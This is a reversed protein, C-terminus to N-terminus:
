RFGLYCICEAFYDLALQPWLVTLRLLKITQGGHHESANRTCIACHLKSPQTM